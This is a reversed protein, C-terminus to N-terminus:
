LVGKRWNTFNDRKCVAPSIANRAKPFSQKSYFHYSNMQKTGLEKATDKLQYSLFTIMQKPFM